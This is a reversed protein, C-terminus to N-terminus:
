EVLLVDSLTRISGFVNSVNLVSNTEVVQSTMEDWRDVKAVESLEFVDYMQAHLQVHFIVMLIASEVCTPAALAKWFLLFNESICRCCTEIMSLDFYGTTAMKFLGNMSFFMSLPVQCKADIKGDFIFAPFVCNSSDRRRVSLSVHPGDDSVIRIVKELMSPVIPTVDVTKTQCPLDMITYLCTGDFIESTQIM